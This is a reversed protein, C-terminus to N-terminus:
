KCIKATVIREMGNYDKEVEVTCKEIDAKIIEVLRGSVIPDSEFLFCCIKKAPLKARIVYQMIKRYVETGAEGALLANRPEFDKVESPLKDYGAATIYPPNSVVIDISEQDMGTFDTNDPIIDARIFKVKDIEGPSCIRSANKAAIKLAEESNDTAFIQFDFNGEELATPIIEGQNKLISCQKKFFGEIETALSIAIAGSGTGIELIKLKLPLDGPRSKVNGGTTCKQKIIEFAAFLTKDVLLETEPRPILVNKDVYLELHRFNAKELIYQVPEHVARRLIYERFKKRKREDPIKEFNLYLQM